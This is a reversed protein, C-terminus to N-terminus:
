DGYVITTYQGYIGLINNVEYDVFKITKIGGNKAATEISADGTAVLGLISTSTAKGVKAYGTPGAAGVSGKSANFLCGQPQYTACGAFVLSLVCVCVVLVRVM